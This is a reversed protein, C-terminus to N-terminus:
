REEILDIWTIRRNETGAGSEQRHRSKDRARPWGDSGDSDIWAREESLLSMRERSTLFRGAAAPQKAHVFEHVVSRVGNRSQGADVRNMNRLTPALPPVTHVM